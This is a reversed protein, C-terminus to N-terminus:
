QNGGQLYNEIWDKEWTLADARRDFAPSEPGDIPSMDAVWQGDTTPEVNSVRRINVQQASSILFRIDDTYICNITGNPRIFIKHTDLM